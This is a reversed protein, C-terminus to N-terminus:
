GIWGEQQVAEPSADIRETAGLQSGLGQAWQRAREEEGDLLPGPTGDVYFSEPPSVIRFGLRRLRKQAARAASGVLWHPKKLRTDFAVAAVKVTGQQVGALWERLGIRGSALSQQGQGAASQRTGQRSMGFAHTPGGVLLLEVDDGLVIPAAGVEIMDVSMRSSLGDAIAKGIVETNGFMSEYVVLAKM